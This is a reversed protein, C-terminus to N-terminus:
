ALLYSPTLTSHQKDKVFMCVCGGSSQYFTLSCVQFILLKSDPDPWQGGVEWEYTYSNKYQLLWLPILPATTDLSKFTGQLKLLAHVLWQQVQVLKARVVVIWMHTNFPPMRTTFIVYCIRCFENKALHSFMQKMHGKHCKFLVASNKKLLNRFVYRAALNQESLEHTKSRVLNFKKNWIHSKM